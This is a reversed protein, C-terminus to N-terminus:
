WMYSAGAGFVGGKSNVSASGKFIWDGKDNIRSVGVAFASQGHSNGLGVGLASHGPVYAQPINAAAMASATGANAYKHMGHESSAIGSNFQDVDVLPAKLGDKAQVPSFCLGYCALAAFILKTTKM